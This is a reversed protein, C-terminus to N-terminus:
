VYGRIGGPDDELVDRVEPDDRFSDLALDQVLGEAVEPSREALEILADKAQDRQGAQEAAAVKIELLDSPPQRLHTCAGEVTQAAASFEGRELRARSERYWGMPREPAMSTLRSYMSTAKAFDGRDEALKGKELWRDYLGVKVVPPLGRLLAPFCRPVLAVALVLVLVAPSWRLWGPELDPSANQTALSHSRSQLEGWVDASLAPYHDPATEDVSITAEGEGALNLSSSELRSEGEAGDLFGRAGDARLEGDLSVDFRPALLSLGDESSARLDGDVVDIRTVRLEYEEVNAQSRETQFGTWNHWRERGEEYVTITANHIFLTFSGSARGVRPDEYRVVPEHTRYDYSPATEENAGERDESYGAQSLREGKPVPEFSSPGSDEASVAARSAPEVLMEAPGTHSGFDVRVDSFTWTRQEDQSVDRHEYADGVEAKVGEERTMEVQIEKAQMELDVSDTWSAQLGGNGLTHTEGSLHVPDPTSFSATLSASVPTAILAITALAVASVLPRLTASRV